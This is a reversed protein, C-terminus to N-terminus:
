IRTVYGLTYSYRSLLSFHTRELYAFLMYISDIDLLHAANRKIIKFNILM